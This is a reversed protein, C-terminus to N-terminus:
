TYKYKPNRVEGPRGPVVQSAGPEPQAGAPVVPSAGPGYTPRSISQGGAGGGSFAPAAASPGGGGAPGGSWQPVMAMSQYRKPQPGAQVVESLFRRDGEDERALGISALHHEATDRDILGEAQLRTLSQELSQMGFKQGTQITSLLQHTKGERILARVATTAVLIEQAAVRGGGRRPLLIQAVVGQISEALMARIQGQENAPFVNIIRDVTKPASATHLTGLVLHGTEAATIALAITELDRMEGVLIVDPDERLSSRLANSFAKTHKGVERQNVMSLKPPHVFEIPDEITIIHGRRSTNIRDVLAALLTSKGSGTPGTCLVLGKEIDAFRKVAEPVMLEECTKIQTPVVRFVAGVGRDQFFINGRFRAVTGISLAFDLEKDAELRNKQQDTLAEYIMTRVEDASFAAAEGGDGLTLKRMEGHIRVMPPAGASLHLDSGGAQKTFLLLTTIDV